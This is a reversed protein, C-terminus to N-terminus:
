QGFCVFLRLYAAVVKFRTTSTERINPGPVAFGLTNGFLLRKWRHFRSGGCTTRSGQLIGVAENYVFLVIKLRKLM